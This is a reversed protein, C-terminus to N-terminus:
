DLELKKPEFGWAGRSKPSQQRVQELNSSELVHLGCTKMTSGILRRAGYHILTLFLM